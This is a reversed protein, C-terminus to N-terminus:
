FYHPSIGNKNNNGHLKRNKEEEWHLFFFDGEFIIDGFLVLRQKELGAKGKKLFFLIIKM